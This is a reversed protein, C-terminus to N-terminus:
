LCFFTPPPPIYRSGSCKGRGPLRVRSRGASLGFTKDMLDGRQHFGSRGANLGLTKDMLGGSKTLIKSLM